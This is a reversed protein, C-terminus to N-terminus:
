QLARFVFERAPCIALVVIINQVRTTRVATTASVGEILDPSLCPSGNPILEVKGIGGDLYASDLAPASWAMVDDCM